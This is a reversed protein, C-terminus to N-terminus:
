IMKTSVAPPFDKIISLDYKIREFLDKLNGSNLM